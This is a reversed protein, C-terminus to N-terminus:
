RWDTDGLREEIDILRGLDAEIALETEALGLYADLDAVDKIFHEETWTTDMDANRRTRNRLERHGIRVTRTTTRTSDDGKTEM